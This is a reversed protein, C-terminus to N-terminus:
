QQQTAQVQQERAAQEQHTDVWASGRQLPDRRNTDNIREPEQRSESQEHARVAAHPERRTEQGAQLAFTVQQHINAHHRLRGQLEQARRGLALMAEFDKGIEATKITACQAEQRHLKKLSQEGHKARSGAGM